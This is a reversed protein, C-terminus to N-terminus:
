KKQYYKESYEKILSNIDLKHVVLLEQIKSDSIENIRYDKFEKFFSKVNERLLKLTGKRMIEVEHSFSGERSVNKTPIILVRKVKETKYEQDFWACHNNMQGTESKHIESRSDEVESKCEFIFYQSNEGCWLNDAGKKFERDPRQSLFGIAIGLDQLAKEFKESAQGFSLNGLIDDITMMLEEYTKQTSIWEKIKKIRNESIYQLKKYNIGDKPKLLQTNNKFASKQTKNSDLKSIRYQYRALIQLYWGKETQNNIHYSDIIKQIYNIANEAENIYFSEEAKRELDLIEIFTKSNNEESSFGEDMKEKYFEKWGEDRKLCQNILDSFVDLPEKGPEELEEKAFQGIEIGIEVQRRTQESFFKNSNASKIFKVLDYGIILIISYDKEGRVSRGLGQEIRQAAKINIPDSNSRCQEEYREILSNAYPMSDIILIRCSNDPLDIGDYKNVLVITNSCQNNKLKNIEEFINEKDTVVSGCHEYTKAKPFSPTIVVIGLNRNAKPKAFKNIISTRDLRDHILSPILIMKEGSWREDKYILPNNVANVDLGLGKIFFSDNQTTASMLIKHEAKSFTGFQRVPSIFPSIELEQGSFFCQCSEINDKILDWTFKVKDDNVYQLLIEIVESKKDEWSWYPVPLLTNYIGSKIELFSGEGQGKLDDEFLQIFKTYIEHKNNVKIKFSDNISDICAHSDDLIITNVKTFKGGVGFISKGNFVKQVHVILIKESNLFEDPLSNDDKITVYGIGFKDAEQCTQKLLYINPCIYLCNGKNENLRSQLILLGILTKGQGTHLKLILDKDDKRHLWWDTLIEKQVPRLISTQSKRDLSDYIEVPNVKKEISKTGLKKKFDVM